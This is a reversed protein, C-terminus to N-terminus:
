FPVPGDNDGDPNFWPDPRPTTGGATPTGNSTETRTRGTITSHPTPFVTPHTTYRQGTPSILVITHPPDDPDTSIHHRWRGTHKLRHDRRCKTQLNASSTTGAPYSVVHDLDCQAAPRPCGPTRCTTDRARVHDDLAAPARYRTRGYDLLQGTVPDTILRRWTSDPAFALARAYQADIPGHGTLHAPHENLGILTAYDITVLVEARLGTRAPRATANWTGAAGRMRDADADEDTNPKADPGAAREAAHEAGPEAAHQVTNEDDAARGDTGTSGTAADSSVADDARAADRAGAGAATGQGTGEEPHEGASVPDGTEGAAPRKETDSDKGPTVPEEANTGSRRDTGSPTDTGTATRDGTDPDAAEDPDAGDAGADADAAGDPDAGQDLDAAGDPDAGQDPDAGDAAGTGDTATPTIKDFFISMLVDARLEDLTRPDGTDRFHRAYADLTGYIAQAEAAPLRAFLDGTGEGPNTRHSVGRGRHNNKRQNVAFVPDILMITAIMAQELDWPLMTAARTLILDEVRAGSAAAVKEASFPSLGDALAQEYHHDTIKKAHVAIKMARAYGLRGARLESMTGPLRTTLMIATDVLREAERHTLGFFTRVEEKTLDWATLDRYREGRSRRAPLPVMEPCRFLAAVSEVKRAAARAEEARVAGLEVMVSGAGGGDGTDAGGAEVDGAEMDGAEAGSDAEASVSSGVGVGPDGDAGAHPSTGTGDGPDRGTRAERSGGEAARDGAEAADTGDDDEGRHGDDTSEADGTGATGGAELGDQDANEHALNHWPDDAFLEALEEM